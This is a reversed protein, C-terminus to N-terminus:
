TRKSTGHSQVTESYQLCEEILPEVQTGLHDECKDIWGLMKERFVIGEKSEIANRDFFHHFFRKFRVLEGQTEESVHDYFEDVANNAHNQIEKFIDAFMGDPNSVTDLMRSVRRGHCGPGPM